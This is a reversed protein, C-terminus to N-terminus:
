ETRQARKRKLKPEDSPFVRHCLSVLSGVLLYVLGNAVVSMSFGWLGALDSGSGTDAGMYFGFGPWLAIVLWDPIWEIRAIKFFFLAELACPAVLGVTLFSWTIKSLTM